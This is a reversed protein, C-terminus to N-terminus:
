VVLFDAATLVLGPALMAFQVAAGAGNGDADFSLEGTQTNYVIRHAASAAQGTANAEFASAALVGLALGGFAADDLRITDEIGNFDTIEDWEGDPTTNFVFVDAGSGGTLTDRGWGGYLFDRGSGGHLADDGSGGSLTDNNTGGELSDDGAGGYLKDASGGGDLTDADAGGYLLDESSGGDVTDAGAGGFLTDDGLDGQLQDDEAGGYILDTGTGGLVTDDGAGGYLTDTETGGDIWDADLGGYALDSGENGTIEDEGAGGYVTDTDYGGGLSDDGAGGHILDNGSLGQLTDDGGRGRLQDNGNEGYFLDGSDGGYLQDEGDGAFLAQSVFGGGLGFYIDNGGGLDLVGHIRGGDNFVVDRLGGLLVNGHIQGDRNDINSEGLGSSDNDLVDGNIRGGRNDVIDGEAGLVLDGDITGGRNDVRDVGNGMTVNGQIAGGRNDLGDDGDGMDIAGRIRGANALLDDGGHTRIQGTMTGDNEVRDRYTYDGQYANIGIMLGHNVIVPETGERGTRASATVATGLYSMAQIVGTNVLGVYDGVLSVGTGEGIIQGHNAVISDDAALSIGFGDYGRVTAGTGITVVPSFGSFWNIGHLGFVEGEVTLAQQTGEGSIAIHDTSAVTVGRRILASDATGLNLRIGSGILDYSIIQMPM